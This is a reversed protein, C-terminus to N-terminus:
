KKDFERNMINKLQDITYRSKKCESERGIKESAIEDVIRQLHDMTTDLREKSLLYCSGNNPITHEGEKMLEKLRLFKIILMSRNDLKQKDLKNPM